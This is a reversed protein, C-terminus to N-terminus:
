QGRKLFKATAEKLMALDVNSEGRMDRMFREWWSFKPLTEGGYMDLLLSLINRDTEKRRIVAWGMTGVSEM